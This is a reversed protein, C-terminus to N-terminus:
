DKSPGIFPNAATRAFDSFDVFFDIFILQIVYKTSDTTHRNAPEQMLSWKGATNVSKLQFFSRGPEFATVTRPLSTVLM